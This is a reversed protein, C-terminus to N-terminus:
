YIGPIRLNALKDIQKQVTEWGVQRSLKGEYRVFTSGTFFISTGEPHDTLINVWVYGGM